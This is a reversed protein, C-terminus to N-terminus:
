YLPLLLSLLGRLLPAPLLNVPPLSILLHSFGAKLSNQKKLGSYYFLFSARFREAWLM